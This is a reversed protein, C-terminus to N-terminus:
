RGDNNKEMEPLNKIIDSALLIGCAFETRGIEFNTQYAKKLKDLLIKKDILESM